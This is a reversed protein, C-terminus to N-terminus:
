AYAGSVTNQNRERVRFGWGFSTFGAFGIINLAFNCLVGPRTLVCANLSHPHTASRNFAGTKFVPLRALTEHTRIGGWGGYVFLGTRPKKNTTVTARHVSVHESDSRLPSSRAPLARSSLGVGDAM